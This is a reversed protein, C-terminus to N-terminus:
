GRAAEQPGRKRGFFSDVWGALGGPMFILIVIIMVGFFIADVEGTM